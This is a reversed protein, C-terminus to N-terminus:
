NVEIEQLGVFDMPRFSSGEVELCLQIAEKMRPILATM